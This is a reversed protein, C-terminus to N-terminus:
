RRLHRARQAVTSKNQEQLLRPDTWSRENVVLNRRRPEDPIITSRHRRDKPSDLFKRIIPPIHLYAGQLLSGRQEKFADM